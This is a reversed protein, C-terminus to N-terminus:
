ARRLIFVDCAHRNRDRYAQQPQRWWGYVAREVALGNEQILALVADLPYALSRTPEERSMARYGGDLRETYPWLASAFPLEADEPRLASFTAWIRGDPKLVRRMNGLYNRTEEPLLHDFLAHAIILDFQAEPFPLQFERASVTGARGYTGNRIPAYRFSFATKAFRRSLAETRARDIDLGVYDLRPDHRAFAAAVRGDGCGVDLIRLPAECALGTLARILEFTEEGRIRSLLYDPDRRRRWTLSFPDRLLWRLCADRAQRPWSTVPLLASPMPNSPPPM